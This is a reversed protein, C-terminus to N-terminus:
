DIIFRFWMTSKLHNPIKAYILPNAEFKSNNIGHANKFQHKTSSLPFCHATFNKLRELQSMSYKSSHCNWCKRKGHVKYVNSFSEKFIIKQVDKKVTQKVYTSLSNCYQTQLINYIVNRSLVKM